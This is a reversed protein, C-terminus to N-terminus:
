AQRQMDNQIQHGFNVSSCLSSTNSFLTSLLINPDLRLFHYSSPLIQTSLIKM